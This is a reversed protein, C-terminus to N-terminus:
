AQHLATLGRVPPSTVAQEAKAEAITEALIQELNHRTAWGTMRRLKTTDTVRRPM